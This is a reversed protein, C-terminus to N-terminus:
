SEQIYTFERKANEISNFILASKIVAKASYSTVGFGLDFEVRKLGSPMNCNVDLQQRVGNVYLASSNNKWIAVLEIDILGVDSANYILVEQVNNNRIMLSWGLDDENKYVTIRNLSTGDSISFATDLHDYLSKIKIVFVGEEDNLINPNVEATVFPAYRTATSGYTPIYPSKFSSLMFGTARFGKGSHVDRALIGNNGTLTAGSLDVSAFVRYISNHVHEVSYDSVVGGGIVISFDVSSSYAAGPSPASGDDMQIFASYYNKQDNVSSGHYLYKTLGNGTFVTCNNFGIDWSFSDFSVGVGGGEPESTQVRNTDQPPIVLLKNKDSDHEVALFNDQVTKLLKNKDFYSQSGVRSFSLEVPMYIGEVINFGLISSSKTALKEGGIIITNEM